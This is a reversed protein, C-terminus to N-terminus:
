VNFVSISFLEARSGISLESRAIHTSKGQFAHILFMLIGFGTRQYFEPSKEKSETRSENLIEQEAPTGTYAM